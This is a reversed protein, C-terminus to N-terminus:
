SVPRRYICVYLPTNIYVLFHLLYVHAAPRLCNASIDSMSDITNSNTLYTPKTHPKSAFQVYLHFYM